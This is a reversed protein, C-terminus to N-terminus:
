ITAVSAMMCIGCIGTSPQIARDFRIYGKEGWSAGWSNRVLYYDKNLKTDTGYGVLTVGHNLGTGCKTNSFVGSDYSMIANAAIAVSTPGAAAFNLLSKCDNKPVDKFGSIKAVVKDAAFKCKGDTATYPYDATRQQGGIKILYKFANDMLGGDCGDNGEAKSCDVLQQESLDELQKGAIKWAGEVAATASFAWCSGCQGQDKVPNVAGKTRWDVDDANTEPAFGINRQYDSSIKLGTYKAVFEEETMHSFKNLALTYSNQQANEQQIKLLTNYFVTTRYREENPCTFRINHKNAWNKFAELVHAPVAPKTDKKLNLLTLGGALVIAGLIILGVVSKM